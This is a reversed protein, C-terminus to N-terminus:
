TTLMSAGRLLTNTAIVESFPSEDRRHLQHLGNMLEHGVGDIVLNADARDDGIWVKESVKFYIWMQM